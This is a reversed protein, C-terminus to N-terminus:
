ILKYYSLVVYQLFPRCECSRDQVKSLIQHNSTVFLVEEYIKLILTDGTHRSIWLIVCFVIREKKKAGDIPLTHEMLGTSKGRHTVDQPTKNLMAGGGALHIDGGM